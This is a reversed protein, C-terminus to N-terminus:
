REEGITDKSKGLLGGELKMDKIELDLNKM